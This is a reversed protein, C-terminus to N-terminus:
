MESAGAPPAGKQAEQAEVMAAVVNHKRAQVKDTRIYSIKHTHHDYDNMPVAVQQKRGRIKKTVLVMPGSISKVKPPKSEDTNGKDDKQDEYEVLHFHGGISATTNLKKGESDRTRFIHTHEFDYFDQPNDDPHTAMGIRKLVPAVSLKFTSSNFEQVKSFSHETPAATEYIDDGSAKVQGLVPDLQSQPQQTNSQQAGRRKVAQRM